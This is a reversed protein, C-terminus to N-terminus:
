LTTSSILLEKKIYFEYPPKGERYKIRRNGGVVFGSILNLKGNTLESCIIAYATNGKEFFFVLNGSQTDKLVKRKDPNLLIYMPWEIRAARAKQFKKEKGGCAHIATEKLRKCVVCFGDPTYIESGYLECFKTFYDEETEICCYTLEKM